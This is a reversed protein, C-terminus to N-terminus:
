PEPLAGAVVRGDVVVALPTSLTVPATGPDADLVLFSARRGPELRGLEDFGWFDAASATGARVIEAGSFGASALAQVESPQIRPDRTNGLDTGYLVLAGHDALARLNLLTDSSPGFASLTSVVAREGFADLADAGLLETPTHALIDIGSAIARTAEVLSTVHVAVKAGRAHAREVIAALTADDVGLEGMLPAKVFRAGADLLQDVASAAAEPSAVELGYGASGWSELPYGGPPTLMPGAQVVPLPYTTTLRALPAAFDAAAVIGGAPLSAAVDYYSLHVHSDIFAPVVFYGNLDVTSADPADELPVLREGRIALEVSEGEAGRAGRVLWTGGKADRGPGADSRTGHCGLLVLGFALVAASASVRM